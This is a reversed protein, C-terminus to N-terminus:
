MRKGTFLHFQEAAQAKLMPLGNIITCGAAEANRLFCTLEPTYIIDYAIEVGSFDFDPLPNGEIDPSM